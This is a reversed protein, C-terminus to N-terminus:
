KKGGSARTANAYVRFADDIIDGGYACYLVNFKIVTFATSKGDRILGRTNVADSSTVFIKM